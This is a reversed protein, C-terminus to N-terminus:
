PHMKRINNIEAMDLFDFVVVNKNVVRFYRHTGFVAFFEQIEEIETLLFQAPLFFFLTGGEPFV